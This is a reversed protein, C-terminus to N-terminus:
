RITSFLQCLGSVVSEYCGHTMEHLFGSTKNWGRPRCPLSHGYTDMVALM